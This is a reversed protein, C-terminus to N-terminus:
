ECHVKITDLAKQRQVDREEETLFYVEGQENRMQIRVKSDLATLNEQARQCYEQNKEIKPTATEVPEFENGPSPKVKLPVAGEDADVARVMSSNTSIVEYETGVPPPRDSNVPNGQSDMWRYVVEGANALSGFLTPVVVALALVCTTLVRKLITDRWNFQRGCFYEVDGGSAIHRIHSSGWERGQIGQKLNVKAMGPLLLVRTKCMAVALTSYGRGRAWQMSEMIPHLQIYTGYEIQATGALNLALCQAVGCPSRYVPLEHDYEGKPLDRATYQAQLPTTPSKLYRNLYKEAVVV